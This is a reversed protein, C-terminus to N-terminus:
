WPSEWATTRELLFSGLEAWSPSAAIAATGRGGKKRKKKYQCGAAPDPNRHTTHALVDFVGYAQLMVHRSMSGVSALCSGSAPLLVSVPRTLCM